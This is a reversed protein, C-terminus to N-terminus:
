KGELKFIGYPTAAYVNSVKDVVISYVVLAGLLGDNIENWTQGGDFSVYAGGDTGAYLTDPNNLDIVIANIFLSGLGTNSEQWSQCGDTSIMVGIGPTAAYLHRNDRPDIALNQDSVSARLYACSQWTSGEDKSYYFNPCGATLYLIEGQLDTYLRPYSGCMSYSELPQQWTEGYDASSYFSLDGGIGSYVFIKGSQTPHSLVGQPLFLEREGGMGGWTTGGDSSLIGSRYLTHGDVDFALDCRSPVVVEWHSGGNSSHYLTRDKGLTCIGEQLYPPETGQPNLILRLRLAGLGASLEQWTKGNDYSAFLGDGGVLAINGFRFISFAQFSSTETPKLENWTNGADFSVEPYDGGSYCYVERGDQPNVQVWNCGDKVPFWTLGGDPSMYLMAPNNEPETHPKKNATVYVYRNDIGGVAFADEAGGPVYYGEMGIREWTIGKDQSRYIGSPCNAGEPDYSDILRSIFLTGPQSQSVVLGGRSRSLCDDAIPSFNIGGDDSRRISWEGWEFIVQSDWPAVAVRHPNTFPKEASRLIWSEGGDITKYLSGEVITAYLVQSDNPDIALGGIRGERMGNQMPKWSGGGDISKYIGANETGVYIVDSDQPDVVIATISDRKFVQGISIRKWTLMVPTATAPPTISPIVTRTPLLTMTPRMTITITPTPAFFAPLSLKPVLWILLGIVIIVIVTGWIRPDNYWRRRKLKVIQALLRSADKYNEDLVLIRKLLESAHAYDRAKLASQAQHYLSELNPQDPM